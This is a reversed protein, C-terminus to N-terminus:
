DLWMYPRTHWVYSRTMDCMHVLWTVCIVSQCSENVHSMVWVHSTWIHSMVWEYTNRAMNCVHVLWIVCIFLDHWVCSRTMDYVHIRWTACTFSDHQMCAHHMWTASYTHWSTCTAYMLSFVCMFLVYQMCPHWKHLMNCAYILWTGRYFIIHMNCVYVIDCVHILCIAYMFAIYAVQQLCTAHM